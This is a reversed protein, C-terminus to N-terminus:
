RGGTGKAGVSRLLQEFQSALREPSFQERAFRLAAQGHRHRDRPNRLAAAVLAAFERLDGSETVWGGESARVIRAVESDPRVAAVVPLGCAMFNMLKSPVNFDVGAYRQSVVAVTARELERDLERRDLVGTVRVRDTTIAARVEDGAVGDGAIVFRAGIEALEGSAEFARTLEVLNQTHGINGMTMVTVGDGANEPRPEELIRRTAPNYIRTMKRDPVGKRRLVDIFSDSIVAIHAASRYATREVRGALRILSGEQLIGTVTAGAPLIDHLWLIWPVRRLRANLMAPVLAPFSPSVAVIVEPTRLAPAAAALALSFSAEQRIRQVATARGVWLPLRLVPLGDRDERYPLLRTGWRPEPYHPHAAVVEMRHGRAALARAITGSLPGIGSPEPDYNYSWLQVHM